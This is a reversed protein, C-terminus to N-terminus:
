GSRPFSELVIYDIVIVKYDILTSIWSFLCPRLLIIYDIISIHYHIALKEFSKHLRNLISPLWNFCLTICQLHKRLRSVIKRSRYSSAHHVFLYILVLLCCDICIDSLLSNPMYFSLVRWLKIKMNSGKDRVIEENEVKFIGFELKWQTCKSLSSLLSKEQSLGLFLQANHSLSTDFLKEYFVYCSFCSSWCYAFFSLWIASVLM